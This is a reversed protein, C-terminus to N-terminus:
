MCRDVGCADHQHHRLSVSPVMPVGDCTMSNVLSTLAAVESQSIAAIGMSAMTVADRCVCRCWLWHLALLDAVPSQLCRAVCPSLAASCEVCM